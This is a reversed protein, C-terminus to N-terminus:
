KLVIICASTRSASCSESSPTVTPPVSIFASRATRQHGPSPLLYSSSKCLIINLNFLVVVSYPIFILVLFIFTIFILLTSSSSFFIFIFISPYSISCTMCRMRSSPFGSAFHWLSILFLIAIPFSANVLLFSNNFPPNLLSMLFLITLDSTHLTVSHSRLRPCHSLLIDFPYLSELHPYPPPHLPDDPCFVSRTFFYQFPPLLFIKISIIQVLCFFQIPCM